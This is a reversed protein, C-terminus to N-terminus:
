LHLRYEENKGKGCAADIEVKYEAQIAASLLRCGKKRQLDYYVEEKYPYVVLKLKKPYGYRKLAVYWEDGNSFWDDILRDGDFLQAKDGGFSINLYIENLAADKLFEEKYEYDLRINYAACAEDAPYDNYKDATELLKEKEASGCEEAYVSVKVARGYARFDGSGDTLMYLKGDKQYIPNESIYLKDNFIYANEAQEKTLLVIDGHNKTDFDFYPENPFNKSDYYFFYKGGAQALLMANTSLLRSEGIRLGFPIVACEGSKCNIDRILIDTGDALELRVDLNRIDDMKRLRQHNNVFLFGEGTDHNYRASIRPTKMDEAGSPLEDPFYAAAPALREEFSNILLHLKKLRHYSENLRGSERIPAEFDYGKIPLDNFYNTAKSEQYTSYKNEGNGDPNFGGHYMYYGLLNAGAALMCLSQAEIDRAFPYTRRHATVQLGGGLEATLYPNDMKAEEDPPTILFNESAPMENIHGEWPADVYGGFVPLTENYISVAGGWSTTTYYPVDFGLERALAKLTMIHREGESKDKPGGVHCYENELQIGIVAGGDKYMQGKTEESLRQWFNRVYSLYPESDTRAVTGFGNDGLEEVLWDPFGGNRCEGHAWPGIRLWVPMNVKKCIELFRRIDRNKSFDFEGKEEEHHIWFVYTALIRIGGAQMKLIEDEWEDAAYRSYHFEGMVPLIPKGNKTLYRSNSGYIDRGNGGGIKLETIAPMDGIRIKMKIETGCIHKFGTM